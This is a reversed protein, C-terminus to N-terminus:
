NFLFSVLLAQQSYVGFIQGRSFQTPNEKLYRREFVAMLERPGPHSSESNHMGISKFSVLRTCVAQLINKLFTFHLVLCEYDEITARWAFHIKM